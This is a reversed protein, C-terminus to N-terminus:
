LTRASIEVRVAPFPAQPALQLVAAEGEKVLITTTARRRDERGEWFEVEYALTVAAEGSIAAAPTATAKVSWKESGDDQIFTAAQGAATMLRPSSVLKGAELLRVRIDYRRPEAATATSTAASSGLLAVAGLAILGLKMM